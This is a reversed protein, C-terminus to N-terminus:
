ERYKLDYFNGTPLRIPLCTSDQVVITKLNQSGYFFGLFEIAYVYRIEKFLTGGKIDGKFLTGKKFFSLVYMVLNFTLGLSCAIKKIDLGHKDLIMTTLVM